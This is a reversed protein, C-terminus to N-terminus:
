KGRDERARREAEGGREVQCGRFVEQNVLGAGAVNHPIM